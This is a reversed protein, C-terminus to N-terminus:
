VRAAFTIAKTARARVICKAHIAHSLRNGIPRKRPFRNGLNTAFLPDLALAKSQKSPAMGTIHPKRIRNQMAAVNKMEVLFKPQYTVNHLAAVFVLDFDIPM